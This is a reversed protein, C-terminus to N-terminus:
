SIQVLLGNGAKIVEAYDRLDEDPDIRLDKKAKEESDYSAWEGCITIPDIEVTEGTEEEYKNYYEYLAVLEDYTFRGPRIREFFEVFLNPTLRLYM